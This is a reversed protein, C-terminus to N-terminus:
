RAAPALGAAPAAPEAEGRAPQKEGIPRWPAAVYGPTAPRVLAREAAIADDALGPSAIGGLWAIALARWLTAM